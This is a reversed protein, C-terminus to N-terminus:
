LSWDLQLKRLKKAHKRLKQHQETDGQKGLERFLRETEGLRAYAGLIGSLQGADPRLPPVYASTLDVVVKAEQYMQMALDFDVKWRVHSPPLEPSVVRHIGIQILAGACSACTPLPWTYATCSELSKTSFAIANREAHQTLLLKISRNELRAKTDRVGAPFGNYGTGVIRHRSDTLVCGVGTSLDKSWGAFFEALALFQWDWKDLNSQV